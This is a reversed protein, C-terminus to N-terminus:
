FLKFNIKKVIYVDLIWLKLCKVSFNKLFSEFIIPVIFQKLYCINIKILINFTDCFDYRIQFWM